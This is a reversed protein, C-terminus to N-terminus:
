GRLKSRSRPAPIELLAIGLLVLKFQAFVKDPASGKQAQASM